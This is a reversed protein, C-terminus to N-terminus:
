QKKLEYVKLTENPNTSYYTKFRHWYLEPRSYDETSNIFIVNILNYDTLNLNYSNNKNIENGFIFVFQPKFDFLYKRTTNNIYNNPLESFLHCISAQQYYKNIIISNFLNPLTLFSFNSLKKKDIIKLLETSPTTYSKDFKQFVYLFLPSYIFKKGEDFNFISFSLHCFLITISLFIAYKHRNLYLKALFYGIIISTFIHVNYFYRIDLSKSFSTNQPSLIFSIFLFSIFAIAIGKLNRDLKNKFLYCILVIQFVFPFIMSRNLDYFSWIFQKLLKLIFFDSNSFLNSLPAINFFYIVTFILLVIFLIGFYIFLMKQHVIKNFKFFAWLSTAIAFSIGSNYNTFVLLLLFILVLSSYIISFKNQFFLITVYMLLIGFFMLLVYYRVNQSILILCINLSFCAFSFLQYTIRNEFIKKILFYFSVLCLIGIFAFFYRINLDNSILFYKLIFSSFLIDVKPHLLKFDYNFKVSDKPNLMYHNIGDFEKFQHFKNYNKANWVVWAEDNWFSVQSPNLLMLWSSIIFFLFLIYKSKPLTM